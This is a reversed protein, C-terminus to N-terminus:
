TRIQLESQYIAYGVFFPGISELYTSTQVTGRMTQVLKSLPTLDRGILGIVFDNDAPDLGHCALRVDQALDAEGWARGITGHEALISRQEPEPLRAFAGSRRLPYWVAWRRGPDQLRRLPKHLLTEVLDPEYGLSYSRGALARDGRPELCEWKEHHDVACHLKLLDLPKEGFTMLGVGRPDHWDKYVVAGVGDHSRILDPLAAASADPDPCATFLRFTAYLRRDLSENRGREATSPTTPSPAESPDAPPASPGRSAADTTRM